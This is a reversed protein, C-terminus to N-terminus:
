RCWGVYSLYIRIHFRSDGSIARRKLVGFVFASRMKVVGSSTPRQNSAYNKIDHLQKTLAFLLLIGTHKSQFVM